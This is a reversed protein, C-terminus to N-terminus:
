LELLEEYKEENPLKPFKHNKKHEKEIATEATEEEIATEDPVNNRKATGKIFQLSVLSILFTSISLVILIDHHMQWYPSYISLILWSVTAYVISAYAYKKGFYLSSQIAILVYFVFLYIGYKEFILILLTLAAIDLLIVANKRLLLLTDPKYAIFANYLISLLIMGGLVLRVLPIHTIVNTSILFSSLILIFLIILRTGAFSREEHYDINKTQM